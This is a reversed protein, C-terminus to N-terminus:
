FGRVEEVVDRARDAAMLGYGQLTMSFTGNGATLGRLATSYGVMENLPIKAEIIRYAFDDTDGQADMGDLTIIEGRRVGSVDKAVAGVLKAPVCIKVNMIPELLKPALTKIALQTAKQAAARIAPLTSLEPTYLQVHTVEVRANTIPFGLLPGRSLAGQIGGYLAASIDDLGPFGAETGHGSVRSADVGALVLNGDDDGIPLLGPHEVNDDPNQRPTIRLSVQAKSKKGFVERDYLYTETHEDQITERYNIRVQGMECSVKREKLREALIELHLEGMGSILTQGTGEDVSVHLSPDERQLIELAETLAKEESVSSAEISRVFVPPPVPIPHLELGRHDNSQCLTDGTKTVKLGLIACVNGASCEPIEEFDDAYIQLLKSGREKENRTVNKLVSRAALTGSYVRVFVMTGRKPDHIIKFALACLSPDSHHVPVSEGTKRIIGEPAPRDVPSPLYHIAGDMVTQVGINRFSAGCYVPVVKGALTLRRLAAHLAGTSIKSMDGDAELFLDMLEDDLEALTEVMKQRAATAEDFLREKQGPGTELKERRVIRGTPDRSWDLREMSVLDIVGEFAPGGSGIGSASHSEDMVVPWQVPLSIGWGGLRKEMSRVSRVFNAGERDMKNVFAIRPVQYRNAQKWVTETQAEVGSVADLIVVAGDLVRISREVEMTFDVHGPTDILNILHDKWALPICASQITIGREREQPLYDTVTSGKDVDGIKSTHGAYFLMRETSTTKGADIHAIIGLNRINQIPLNPQSAYLRDSRPFRLPPLAVKACSSLNPPAARRAPLAARLLFQVVPM